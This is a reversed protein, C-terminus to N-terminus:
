HHYFELPSLQVEQELSELLQRGKTHLTHGKEFNQDQDPNQLSSRRELLAGTLLGDLEVFKAKLPELIFIGNKSLYKRFEGCAEGTKNFDEKHIVNAYYRTKDPALKLESKQWNALPSKELFEELQETTMRNVDPYQLFGLSVPVTTNFADSLRGWAEPLVDFEGQHLKVTRDMLSNIEFKLQELERQQAHRYAALREEFKANLWKEGFVKFINYVIAALGGGVVVVAGLGALVTGIINQIETWM